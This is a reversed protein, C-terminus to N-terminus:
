PAKLIAQVTEVIMPSSSGRKRDKPLASHAEELLDTLGILGALKGESDVVPIRRLRAHVMMDRVEALQTDEHCIVITKSMASALSCEYLPRGQTYSAICIDRDTIMSVPEAADNVVVIAGLDHEWMLRAADNLSQSVHCFIAPSEMVDSAKTERKKAQPVSAKKRIPAAKAPALDSSTAIKPSETLKKARSRPPKQIPAPSVKEEVLTLKVASM